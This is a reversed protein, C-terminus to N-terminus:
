KNKVCTAIFHQDSLSPNTKHKTYLFLGYDVASRLTTHIIAFIISTAVMSAFASLGMPNLLAGAVTTTIMIATIMALGRLILTPCKKKIWMMKQDHKQHSILTEKYFQIRQNIFQSQNPERQKKKELAKIRRKLFLPLIFHTSIFLLGIAAPITLAIVALPSLVAGLPAFLVQSANYLGTFVIIQIFGISNNFFDHLDHYASPTISIPTTRNPQSNANMPQENLNDKISIM